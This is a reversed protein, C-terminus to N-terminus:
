NIVCDNSSLQMLCIFCHDMEEFHLGQHIVFVYTEGTGPDNYAIAATVFLVRSLIGLSKLFPSVKVTKQTENIIMVDRGVCCTDAHSDLEVRFGDNPVDPYIVGVSSISGENDNNKREVIKMISNDDTADTVNSGTSNKKKWKQLTTSEKTSSKDSDSLVSDKRRISKSSSVDSIKRKKKL